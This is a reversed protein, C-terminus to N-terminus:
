FHIPPPYCPRNPNRTCFTVSKKHHPPKYIPPKHISPTYIQSKSYEADALGQPVLMLAALFLMLFSLFFSNAMKLLSKLTIHMICLSNVPKISTLPEIPTYPWDFDNVLYWFTTYIIWCHIQFIFYKSFQITLVLGKIKWV